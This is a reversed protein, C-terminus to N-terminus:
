DVCLVSVAPIRCLCLGDLASRGREEPGEEDCHSCEQVIKASHSESICPCACVSLFVSVLECMVDVCRLPGIRAFVASLDDEKTTFNLNKVFVTTGAESSEEEEM